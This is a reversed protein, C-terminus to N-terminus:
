TRRRRVVACLGVLSFLALSSPEPVANVSGLTTGFAQLEGISYRGDGGSAYIRIHRANVPAFDINAVYEGSSSDTSMTDMGFGVDGDGIQIETLSLFDVGNASYDIKYSDNNDVSILLDDLNFLEGYDITFSVGSAGTQQSWYVTTPSSWFSVEAPIEGDFILKTSNSFNGQSSIGSPLMLGAQGISLMSISFLIALGCKMAGAHLGASCTAPAIFSALFLFARIM